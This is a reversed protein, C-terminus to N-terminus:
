VEAGTADVWKSGTWWIPKNLSTDFYEYGKSNDSDDFTPRNYQNNANQKQAYNERIYNGNADVWSGDSLYFIPCGYKAGDQNKIDLCYFMTGQPPNLPRDNYYGSKRFSFDVGLADVWKGEGAYTLKRKLSDSKTFYEFGIKSDPLIPLHTSYGQKRYIFAGVNLKNNSEIIKDLINDEDKSAFVASKDWTQNPLTIINNSAILVGVNMEADNYFYIFYKGGNTINNNIYINSIELLKDDSRITLFVGKEKNTSFINDNIYVNKANERLLICYVDNDGESNITFNNNLVTIGDIPCYNFVIGQYSYGPTKVVNNTIITNKVIQDKTMGITVFYACKYDVKNNEVICNSAYIRIIADASARDNFMINNRIIVGKDQIKVHSRSINYFYCSEIIKPYIIEGEIENVFIDYDTVFHVADGDETSIIDYFTCGKILVNKSHQLTIARCGGKENGVTGDPFAEVGNVTTNIVNVNECRRFLVGRAGSDIEKFNCFRCGEVYVNKTYFINAGTHAINAGDVVLNILKVYNVELNNINFNFMSGGSECIFQGNRIEIDHEIYIPEDIYFTNCEFDVYNQKYICAKVVKSTSFKNFHYYKVNKAAVIDIDNFIVTKSNSKIYCDNGKVTGNSFSGGQFDLTCGEPITIEVGQLDYDYQIIYITNSKSMMDQTLVNVGDVVNKRLYVRGLGSFSEASYEKDAFKVTGGKAETLDEYDPNNTINIDGTVSSIGVEQVWDDTNIYNDLSLSENHYTAWDGNETRFTIKQGLMRHKAPVDKIASALTHIGGKLGHITVNYGYRNSISTELSDNSTNTADKAIEVAQEATSIALSASNKANAASTAAEKAKEEAVLASEASAESAKKSDEASKAAEAASQASESASTAANTAQTAALEAYDAADKAPTLVIEDVETKTYYQELDVSEDGGTKESNKWGNTGYVWIAFSESTGVYAKDGVNATPYAAKMDAETLFYGKNRFSANKMKEMDLNIHNFNANLSEAARGWSGSSQIKNLEM